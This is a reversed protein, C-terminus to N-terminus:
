EFNMRLPGAASRARGSRRAPGQGDAAPREQALWAAAPHRGSGRAGRAARASRLAPDQHPGAPQARRRDPAPLGAYGARPDLPAPLPGRPRPRAGAQAALRHAPRAEALGPGRRMPSAV